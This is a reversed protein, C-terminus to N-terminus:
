HSSLEHLSIRILPRQRRALTWLAVASVMACGATHHAACQRHRIHGLTPLAPDAGADDLRRGVPRFARDSRRWVGLLDAPTPLQLRGAAVAHASLDLDARTGCQPTSSPSRQCLGHMTKSTVIFSRSAHRVIYTTKRSNWLWSSLAHLYKRWLEYNDCRLAAYCALTNHVACSLVTVTKIRISSLIM